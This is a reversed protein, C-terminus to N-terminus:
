ARFWRFWLFWLFRRAIQRDGVRREVFEGDAPEPVSRAYQTGLARRGPCRGIDQGECTGFGTPFVPRCHRLEQVIRRPEPLVIPAMMKESTSELVVLVPGQRCTRVACEQRM